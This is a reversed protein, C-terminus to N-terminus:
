EDDAPFWIIRSGIDRSRVHGEEHLRGLRQYATSAKVGLENAVVEARDGAHKAVTQLFEEDTIEEGTSQQDAM